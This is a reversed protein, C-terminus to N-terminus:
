CNKTDDDEDGEAPDSMMDRKQADELHKVVLEAYGAIDRWHDIERWNGSAIRAMKSAIMDLAEQAIHARLNVGLNLASKVSQSIWATLHFPGHTKERENLLNNEYNSM